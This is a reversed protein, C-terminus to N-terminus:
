ASEDGATGGAAVILLPLGSMMWRAVVVLVVAVLPTPLLM